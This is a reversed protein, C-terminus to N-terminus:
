NKANAKEVVLRLASALENVAPPKGLVMDVNIPKNGEAEMISGWGTLMIVPTGASEEKIAKAVQHGDIGPMGLDTMVVDFPDNFLQAVRFKELGSEGDSATEVKHGGGKLILGLVDLISPEDDLCLIKLSSTTAAQTAAAAAAKAERDRAVPFVLRM